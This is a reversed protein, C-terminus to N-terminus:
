VNHFFIGVKKRFELNHWDVWPLQQQPGALM